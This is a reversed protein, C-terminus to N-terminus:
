LKARRMAVSYVVAQMLSHSSSSKYMRQAAGLIEVYKEDRIQAVRSGHPPYLKEILDLQGNIDDLDERENISLRTCAARYARTCIDLDLRATFEMNM